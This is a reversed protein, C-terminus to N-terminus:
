QRRALAVRVAMWQLVLATSAVSAMVYSRPARETEPQLNCAAPGAVHRFTVGAQRM